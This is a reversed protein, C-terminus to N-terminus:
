PDDPERGAPGGLAELFRAAVGDGDLFGLEELEDAAVLVGLEAALVAEGRDVAELVPPTLDRDRVEFVQPGEDIADEASLAVHERGFIGDHERLRAAGGPLGLENRHRRAAAPTGVAVRLARPQVVAPALVRAEEVVEDGVHDRLRDLAVRRLADGVARGGPVDELGGGGQYHALIVANLERRLREIEAFLDLSPDLDPTDEHMSRTEEPNRPAVVCGGDTGDINRVVGSEGLALEALNM